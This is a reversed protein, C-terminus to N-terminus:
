GEGGHFRENAIVRRAKFTALNAKTFDDRKKQFVTLIWLTPNELETKPLWFIVRLNDHNGITDDIRLEGIRLDRLSKIWCWDLDVALGSM